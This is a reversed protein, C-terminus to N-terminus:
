ETHLPAVDDVVREVVIGQVRALVAAEGALLGEDRHEDFLHLVLDGAGRAFGVDFLVKICNTVAYDGPHGAHKAAAM